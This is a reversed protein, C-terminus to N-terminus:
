HQHEHELSPKQKEPEEKKPKEMVPIEAVTVQLRGGVARELEVRHTWYDRLAEVQEVQANLQEQKAALLDLASLTMNNYREQSLEVVRAHLPGMTKRYAELTNQAALVQALIERVESRVSLEMATLKDRSQRYQALLRARDAQGRNFLPLELQLTPGTVRVGDPERETSAGLEVATFVGWHRLARAKEIINVDQRQMDLDLRNAVAQSELTDPTSLARQAPLDPLKSSIKDKIRVAAVGMLRGLKEQLGTISLQIRDVDLTAHHYSAVRPLVELESANGAKWLKQAFESAAEAGLLLDRKLALKAQAGQLEYYALKVDTALNLVALTVRTKAADFRSAELRKRMPVLILDIFNFAITLESNAGAPGRDPFRVSAGLIPNKPVGSEMVDAEAIGLEEFTAQLTFNKLLAIQVAGDISIEQQNLLPEVAAAVNGTSSAGEWEIKKDILAGVQGQVDQFGTSARRSACGTLMWCAFLAFGLGLRNM